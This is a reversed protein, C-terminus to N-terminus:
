AGYRRSGFDWGSLRECSRSETIEGSGLSRWSRIICYIGLAIHFARLLMPHGSSSAMAAMAIPPQDHPHSGNGPPDLIQDHMGSDRIHDYVWHETRGMGSAVSLFGLESDDGRSNGILQLSRQRGTRLAWEGLGLGVGRSAGLDHGHDHHHHDPDADIDGDSRRSLPMRPVVAAGPPSGSSV